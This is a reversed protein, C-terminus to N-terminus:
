SGFGLLSDDGFHEDVLNLLREHDVDVSHDDVSETLLEGDGGYLAIKCHVRISFKKEHLANSIGVHPESFQVVQEFSGNMYGPDAVVRDAKESFLLDLMFSYQPTQIKTTLIKSFSHVNQILQVTDGHDSNSSLRRIGRRLLDTLHRLKVKETVTKIAEVYERWKIKYGMFRHQLLSKSAFRDSFLDSVHEGDVYVYRNHVFYNFLERIQITDVSNAEYDFLEIRKGNFKSVIDFLNRAQLSTLLLINRVDRTYEFYLRTAEAGAGFAVITRGSNDRSETVNVGSGSLKRKFTNNCENLGDITQRIDLVLELLSGYVHENEGTSRSMVFPASQRVFQLESQHPVRRFFRICGYLLSDRRTYILSMIEKSKPKAKSM